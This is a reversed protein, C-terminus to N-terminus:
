WLRSPTLSIWATVELEDNLGWYNLDQHWSVYNPSNAEKIFLSSGWVLLDPGIIAAAVDVLRPNRILRDFSPLLRATYSRLLSMRSRDGALEAQAAELDALLEGAEREGIVDHPFYYGDAAYAAAIRSADVPSRSLDNM